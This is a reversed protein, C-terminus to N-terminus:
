TEEPSWGQRIIIPQSRSFFDVLKQVKYIYIDSNGEWYSLQENGYQILKQIEESLGSGESEVCALSEALLWEYVYQPVSSKIQYDALTINHEVGRIQRCYTELTMTGDRVDSPVYGKLAMEALALGTGHVQLLNERTQIYEGSNITECYLRWLLDVQNNKKEMIREELFASEYKFRLYWLRVSPDLDKENKLYGKRKLLRFAESMLMDAMPLRHFEHGKIKLVGGQGFVDYLLQWERAIDLVIELYRNVARKQDSSNRRCVSTIIMRAAKEADALGYAVSDIGNQYQRRADLFLIGAGFYYACSKDASPIELVINMYKLAEDKVKTWSMPLGANEGGDEKFAFRIRDYQRLTLNYLRFLLEKDDTSWHALAEPWEEAASCTNLHIDYGSLIMMSLHLAISGSRVDEKLMEEILYKCCYHLLPDRLSNGSVARQYLMRGLVEMRQASNGYQFSIRLGESVMRCASSDGEIARVLEGFLREAEDPRGSINMLVLPMMNYLKAASKNDQYAFYYMPGQALKDGGDYSFVASKLLEHSLEYRGDVTQHIMDELYYLMRSFRVESYFGSWYRPRAAYKRCWSCLDSLEERSIGKVCLALSFYLCALYNFESDDHEALIKMSRFLWHRVLADREVPHAKVMGCLYQAIAQGAPMEKQMEGIRDFDAADIELIDRVILELCIMNRSLPHALIAGYVEEGIEKHASALRKKVIARIDSETVEPMGYFHCWTGAKMLAAGDLSIELNTSFVFCLKENHHGPLFVSERLADDHMLHHLGDILIYREGGDYDKTLRRWKERWYTENGATPESRLYEEEDDESLEQCLIKILRDTDTCYGSGCYVIRVHKQESLLRSGLASLVSTTGCGNEGYVLMMSSPYIFRAMDDLLAERGGFRESLESAARRDEIRQREIWGLPRDGWKSRLLKELEGSLLRSFEDYRGIEKRYDVTYEIIRATPNSRIKEKLRDMRGADEESQPLYIRRAAESLHETGADNRFCFICRDLADENTWAGYRIELETVSMEERVDFGKKGAAEWLREAPPVWGYRSGLLVLMYPACQDITNLCVDLVKDSGESESCGETDIGWRLDVFGLSRGHANAFARLRPMVIRHLTDREGQMDLFTSSVFFTARDSEM